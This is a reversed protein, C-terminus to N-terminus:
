GVGVWEDDGEVFMQHKWIPVEAKLRDVLTQCADFAQGRHEASVAAVVAVDGIALEGTAHHVAVAVLGPRAAIEGALAHLRDVASPHASYDLRTVQRGHDHDRVLGLFTAVCGARPDQVASVLTDLCAGPGVEVHVVRASPPTSTM